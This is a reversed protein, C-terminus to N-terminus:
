MAPQRERFRRLFTRAAQEPEIKLQRALELVFGRLYVAPPLADFDEDELAKLSSLPIKTRSAIDRLALGRAERIARLLAGTYETDPTLEPMAPLEARSLAVESEGQIQRSVEDSPAPSISLDYPRRRIPDLLIDRAEEIRAVTRALTEASCLGAIAVSELSYLDRMKRVARRIEEDSVGRDIVLTDYHTPDALPETNHSGSLVTSHASSADSEAHLAAALKRAVRELNRAAKSGPAEVLLPRRKRAAVAVSDDFEIHGLYSITVGLQQRAVICLEEGLELDARTRTCNILLWPRLQRLLQWALSQAEPSKAAFQRALDKPAPAGGHATVLERVVAAAAPLTKLANSLQRAYALRVWRHVAEVSAPEPLAVLVSADTALM